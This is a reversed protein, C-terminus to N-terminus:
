SKFFEVFQGNEKENLGCSRFFALSDRNYESVNFKPTDFKKQLQSILKRGIGKRRKSADILIECGIEDEHLVGVVGVRHSHQVIEFYAM